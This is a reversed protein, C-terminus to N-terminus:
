DTVARVACDFFTDDHSYPPACMCLFRAGDAGAALRHWSGPPILVADGAALDGQESGDVEMAGGGDLFFYIEESERHYHRDTAQGPALTAEALSQVATHLLERITSGDKTTFAAAADLSRIEV